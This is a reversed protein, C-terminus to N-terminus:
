SIHFVFKLKAYIALSNNIIFIFNIKYFHFYVAFFLRMLWYIVIVGEAM